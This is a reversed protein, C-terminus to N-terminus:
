KETLSLKLIRDLEEEEQKCRREIEELERKSLELALQMQEDIMGQYSQDQTEQPVPPLPRQESPSSAPFQGASKMSEEIAQQLMREEESQLSRMGVSNTQSKNLAEWLTVQDSETGAELLSQQIAFQLLEDDEDRLREHHTEGIVSYGSPIDFCSEDVVCYIKNDEEEESITTVGRAPEDTGFINGFTIRANLVHFLPIEIKVPFGSPLQLTIFDKLKRFHANHTAMLDIIPIVQEPLSLPYNESLWLQARFKQVKKTQEIPRGIDKGQLDYAKNFYEEPTINCPNHSVTSLDGNAMAGQAKEEKEAMGFLSELPNKSNKKCQIKDQDTLHETRTKTVLEVNSASFVKCDYGNVNEAKDSRWGWLGSKSTTVIPATIRAAVADDSPRLFSIDPPEPLVRMTEQFVQRADHDIEMVIASEMGGKFVFSRNGRQWNTNDFGLLTTDIRVNSGSKWVRYTDSPCMRAVLPVWSAFEWKMEVYFDPAETLKQLLLPVGESRCTYRQYDRYQLCLQLIEPDGTCVAEQVVTWYRSNEVNANAGHQFLVKACNLHGLTVALHVPTRGRPDIKEIDYEGKSLLKDLEEHNDNWVLIHLPYDSQIVSSTM